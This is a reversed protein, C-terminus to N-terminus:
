HGLFKGTSINLDRLEHMTCILCLVFSQAHDHVKWCVHVHSTFRPMKTQNKSTQKM